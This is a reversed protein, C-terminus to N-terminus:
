ERGKARTPLDFIDQYADKGTGNGGLAAYPQYLYEVNKKDELSCWGQAMYQKHAQWLRDHLVAKVGAKLAESDKRQAALRKAAWRWLAAMAAALLGCAWQMWYAAIMDWM